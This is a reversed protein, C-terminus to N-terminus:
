WRFYFRRFEYKFVAYNKDYPKFYQDANSNDPSTIGKNYRPKCEHSPIKSDNEFRKTNIGTIKIKGGMKRLRSLCKIEGFPGYNKVLTYKNLRGIYQRAQSFSTTGYEKGWIGFEPGGTASELLCTLVTHGYKDKNELKEKSDLFEQWAKKDKDTINKTM